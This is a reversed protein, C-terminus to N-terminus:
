RSCSLAHRQISQCLSIRDPEASWVRGSNRAASSRRGHLGADRSRLRRMHLPLFQMRHRHGSGVHRSHVRHHPSHRRRYSWSVRDTCRFLYILLYCYCVADSNPLDPWACHVTDECGFAPSGTWATYAPQGLRRVVAGENPWGGGVRRALFEARCTRGIHTRRPQDSRRSSDPCRHLGWFRWSQDSTLSAGTQAATYDSRWVM